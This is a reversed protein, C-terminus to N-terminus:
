PYTEEYYDRYGLWCGHGDRITRGYALGWSWCGQHPFSLAFSFLFTTFIFM